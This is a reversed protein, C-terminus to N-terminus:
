RGPIRVCVGHAIGTRNFLSSNRVDCNWQSTSWPRSGNIVVLSDYVNIHCGGGSIRYGAPCAASRWSRNSLPPLTLSTTRFVTDLPTDFNRAFYGVVDIVVHAPRRAYINIQETCGYCQPQITANSIASLNDRGDFNVTAATPRSSGFPYITLWGDASGVPLAAVNIVVAAAASSVGCNIQGGQTSTNGITDASFTGREPIPPNAGWKTAVRTDVIRCPQLPFYVLESTASTGINIFEDYTAAESKSLLTEADLESLMGVMMDLWTDDNGRELAEAEWNAALEQVFAEKNAEIDALTEAYEQGELYADYAESLEVSDDAVAPSVVLLIGGLLLLAILLRNKLCKRM